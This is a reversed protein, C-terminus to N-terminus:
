RTIIRAIQEQTSGKPIEFSGVFIVKELDNDLLYQNFEDASEILGAEELRRSVAESSDGPRVTITLMESEAGTEKPADWTEVDGTGELVTTDEPNKTTEVRETEELSEGVENEKETGTSDGAGHNQMAESGTTPEGSETVDANENAEPNEATESDQKSESVKETEGETQPTPTPNNERIDALTIQEVMGLELARQKIEENTLTEKDKTIVGMFLATVVIGIGLGRLYYKLKM